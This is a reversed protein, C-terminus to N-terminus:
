IAGMTPDDTIPFHEVPPTWAAREDDTMVRMVDAAKGADTTREIGTRCIFPPLRRGREDRPNLLDSMRPRVTLLNKGTVRAVEDPTMPRETLASLILKFTPGAYKSAAKAARSSTGGKTKHNAPVKDRALLELLDAQANM